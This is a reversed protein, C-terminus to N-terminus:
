TEGDTGLPALFGQQVLQRAVGLVPPGVEASSRGVEKALDDILERMPRTGTCACLLRAVYPDARGRHAFGAARSLTSEVIRWGDDGPECQQQLRVEPDIRLRARLLVEDGAEELFTRVEFGRAVDEGVPGFMKPPADEIRVWNRAGSRRRITILGASVAEIGNRQYYGMWEEFLQPSKELHHKETQRLWVDAYVAADQTESRIVWADCGSGEFWTALHQQWEEGRLHAWNCLMQCYGGENLHGPAQRVITRCIEDGRMGSDRFLYRSEPSIVFPPNTVILDFRRGALPEFLSGEVHSVNTAGNLLTNFRAFEVARGNRDLATVQDSHASALLALTGCGSGLDLTSGVRRRITANALTITAAGVGMVYDARVEDATRPNLDSALLLGQYPILRVTAAVDADGGDGSVLLGADLCTELPVRGLAERAQDRSVPVAMLFLRVFTDLPDGGRTRWLFLPHNASGVTPLTDVALRKTIHDAAYGGAVLADRAAAYDSATHFRPVAGARATITAM